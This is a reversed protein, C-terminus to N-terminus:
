LDDMWSQLEGISNAAQGRLGSFCLDRVDSDTAPDPDTRINYGGIQSWGENCSPCIIEDNEELDDVGQDGDSSAIDTLVAARPLFRM